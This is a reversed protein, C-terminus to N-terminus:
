AVFQRDDSLAPAFASRLVRARFHARPRLLSRQKVNHIHFRHSRRLPLRARSRKADAAVRETGASRTASCAREITTPASRVSRRQSKMCDGAGSTPPTWIRSSRSSPTSVQAAVRKRNAAMLDSRSSDLVLVRCDAKETELYELLAALLQTLLTFDRM